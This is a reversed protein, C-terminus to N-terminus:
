GISKLLEVMENEPLSKQTRNETRVEYALGPVAEYMMRLSRVDSADSRLLVAETSDIQIESLSDTPYKQVEVEDNFPRTLYRVVLDFSDFGDKDYRLTLEKPNDERIPPYHSVLIGNLKYGEPIHTPITAEYGLDAIAAPLDVPKYSKEQVTMPGWAIGKLIWFLIGLGVIALVALWIKKKKM